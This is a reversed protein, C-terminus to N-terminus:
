GIMNQQRRKNSLYVFERSFTPDFSGNGFLPFSFFFLFFSSELSLEPGVDCRGWKDNLTGAGRRVGWVRGVLLSRAAVRSGVM